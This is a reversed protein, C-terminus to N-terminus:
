PHHRAGPRPRAPRGGPRWGTGPRLIRWDLHDTTVMLRGTVSDYGYLLDGASELTHFDAKGLLSVPDWTQAADTSEILGLHVPLNERQDPHGSALFHNPGVVTFAMTDQWRDAVREVTGAGDKGLNFVGFHTAAYLTGNAPDTGLGHVHGLSRAGPQDGAPPPESGDSCASLLVLLGATVISLVTTRLDSPM